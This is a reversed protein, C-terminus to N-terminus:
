LTLDIGSVLVGPLLASDTSRGDYTQASLILERERTLGELRDGLLHYLSDDFRMVRVPCVIEGREVWYTGFRTMGTVRCDNPDSWNCYWLNGVWLGSDLLGPVAATELTGPDLGLSSPSGGAANVVEGYEKGARADVLCGSLRGGELLSVRPPLPFAEPTFGAVLGRDHEEGIGVGPAFAREGRALRLLPTQRTRHSKLDFGDWSLLDMLENVASPALFARYRGPELTRAPRAMVRLGERMAAVRQRMVEPEWQFGSYAAKVAKDAELHCSWDLNFSASEHWHRHGLSSAVGEGIDGGAWIGVLDMDDAAEVLSGIAEAADPARDGCRRWSEGPEHCFDLYPDAPVHRLRERLRSLLHRARTLDDSPTGSLDCGGEVQRTGEILTLSLSAAHVHGAQRVRNRNLRVFDSHESSMGCFLVEAGTLGAKLRDALGFLTEASM